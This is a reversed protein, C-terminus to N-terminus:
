RWVAEVVVPHVGIHQGLRQFADEDLRPEEIVPGLPTCAGSGGSAACLLVFFPLLAISRVCLLAFCLLAVGLWALWLLASFFFPEM